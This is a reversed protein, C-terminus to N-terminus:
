LYSSRVVRTSKRALKVRRARDRGAYIAYRVLVTRACKDSEPPYKDALKRLSDLRPAIHLRDLMPTAMARVIGNHIKTYLFDM